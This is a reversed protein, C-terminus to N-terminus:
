KRRPGACSSRRARAPSSRRSSSTAGCRRTISTSSARRRGPGTTRPCRSAPGPTRRRPTPGAGPRWGISSGPSISAGSSARSRANPSAPSANRSSPSPCRSRSRGPRTEHRVPREAHGHPPRGDQPGPHGLRPRGARRRPLAQRPPPGLGHEPREDGARLLQPHRRRSRHLGRLRQGPLHHFGERDPHGLSPAGRPLGRHLLLDDDWLMQVRTRHRPAPKSPGEIDGFVETWEADAWASEDLRGDVTSRAPRAGASTNRRPSLPRQAPPRRGAARRRRGGRGLILLIGAPVLKSRM